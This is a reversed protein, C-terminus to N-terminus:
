AEPPLAESLRKKVRETGPSAPTVWSVSLNPFIVQDNETRTHDDKGKRYAQRWLADTPGAGERGM